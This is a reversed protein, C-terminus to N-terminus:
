IKNNNNNNRVNFDMPRKPVESVLMIFSNMFTKARLIIQFIFHEIAWAMQNTNLSKEIIEIHQKKDEARVKERQM